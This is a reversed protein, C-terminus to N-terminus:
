FIFRGGTGAAMGCRLMIIRYSKFIERHILIVKKERFLLMHVNLCPIHSTGMLVPINSVLPYHKPLIKTILILKGSMPCLFIDCRGM